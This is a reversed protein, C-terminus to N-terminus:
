RAFLFRLVDCFRTAWAFENHEMGPCERYCLNDGESWGKGILTDRLSRADQVVQDPSNGECTGTDLWIRHRVSGRYSRVMDLIVRSDWWVSPSLIALKGFVRPYHLGAELSVLGGLSSGGVATQSGSKVTRYEHDILPKIERALMQAYRDAKAM